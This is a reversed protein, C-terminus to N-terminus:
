AHLEPLKDEPAKLALDLDQLEGHCSSSKALVSRTFRTQETQENWFICAGMGCPGPNEIALGDTFAVIDLSTNAHYQEAALKESASQEITNQQKEARDM